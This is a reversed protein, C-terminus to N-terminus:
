GCVEDSIKLAFEMLTKNEKNLWTSSEWIDWGNALFILGAKVHPDEKVLHLLERTEILNELGATPYGVETLIIEFSRGTAKKIKELEWRYGYINDLCVEQDRYFDIEDANFCYDDGTINSAYATSGWYDIAEWFEQILLLRELYDNANIRENEGISGSRGLSLSGSILKIEPDNLKNKIDVVYDAYDRPDKFAENSGFIINPKDWIQIFEINSSQKLKRIFEVVTDSPLASQQWNEGLIRVVPILGNTRSKNIFNIIDQLSAEENISTAIGLAYGNRQTFKNTEDIFDYGYGPMFVFGLKNCNEPSVDVFVDDPHIDQELAVVRETIEFGRDSLDDLAFRNFTRIVITKINTFIETIKNNLLDIERKDTNTNLLSRINIRLPDTRIKLGNNIEVKSNLAIATLRQTNHEVIYVLPETNELRQTSPKGYFVNTKGPDIQRISLIEESNQFTIKPSNLEISILINTPKYEDNITDMYRSDKFSDLELILSKEDLSLVLNNDQLYAIDLADSDFTITFPVNETTFFIM